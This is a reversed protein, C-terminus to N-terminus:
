DNARVVSLIRNKGHNNYHDEEFKYGNKYLFIRWKMSQSVILSILNQLREPNDVRHLKHTKVIGRQKRYDRGNLRGV